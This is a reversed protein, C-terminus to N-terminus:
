SSTKEYWQTVGIGALYQEQKSSCEVKFNVIEKSGIFVSM